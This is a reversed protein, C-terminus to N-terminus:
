PEFYPLASYFPAIRIGGPSRPAAESWAVLLELNAGVIGTSDWIMRCTGPQIELSTLPVHSLDDLLLMAWSPNHIVVGVMDPINVIMWNKGDVVCLSFDLCNEGTRNLGVIAAVGPVGAGLTGPQVRRREPGDSM